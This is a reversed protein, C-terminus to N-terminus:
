FKKRNAKTGDKMTHIYDKENSFQPSQGTYEDKITKIMSDLDPSELANQIDVQCDAADTGDPGNWTIENDSATYVWDSPYYMSYGLEDSKFLKTGASQGAANANNSKSSEQSTSNSSTKKSYRNLFVYTSGSGLIIGFLLVALFSATKKIRHNQLVRIKAPKVSNSNIAM